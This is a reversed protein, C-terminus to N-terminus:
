FKDFVDDGNVLIFSSFIDKSDYSQSISSLSSKFKIIDDKGGSFLFYKISSLIYTPVDGKKLYSFFVFYIVFNLSSCFKYIKKFIHFQKINYNIQNIQIM